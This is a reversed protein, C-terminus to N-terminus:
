PRRADLLAFNLGVVVDDVTADDREAFHDRLYDWFDPWDAFLPHGKHYWERSLELPFAPQGEFWDNDIHALHLRDLEEVLERVRAKSIRMRGAALSLGVPRKEGVRWALLQRAPLTLEGVSAALENVKPVFYDRDETDLDPRIQELTVCNIVVNARTVDGIEQEVAVLAARFRDEHKKKMARMRDASFAARGNTGDVEDHHTPCLLLLNEVARKDEASMTELYRASTPKVGHIHAIQGQWDRHENLLRRDCSDFACQNGCLLWLERSVLTGAELRDDKDPATGTGM